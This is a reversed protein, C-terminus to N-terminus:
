FPFDDNTPKIEVKKLYGGRQLIWHLKENELLKPLRNRILQAYFSKIDPDDFISYVQNNYDAAELLSVVQDDTWNSYESLKGIINHTTSFSGSCRLNEILNNKQNETKLEIDKLHESLFMTLSTYFYIDSNKKSKWENVLFRNMENDQIPSRYDKDFSVFFLDVDNPFSFLLTEWNIADGYSSNKGPPNGFNFRRISRDIIEQKRPQIEIKSFIKKIVIDAHLEEKQIGEEIRKLIEKQKSKFSKASGLLSDYEEYGKCLNPIKINIEKFQKLADKIRNERNRFIEDVVQEPLFIDVENGIMDHLKVFQELDDNSYHYLDLWIQSDLFLYM